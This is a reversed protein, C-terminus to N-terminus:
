KSAQLLFGLIDRRMTEEVVPPSSMATGPAYRNPDAMFINLAVINWVQPSGSLAASYNFNPISGARRGIIGRLDPGIHGGQVTPAVSHCGACRIMFDQKGKEPDGPAVRQYTPSSTPAWEQALKGAVQKLEHNSPTGPNIRLLRGNPHDTLVYIHDDPGVKVDRIREELNLLLKEQLLVDGNVIRLREVAKGALFGVFFDGDWAPYTRGRYRTIGSPTPSAPPKWPMWILVPQEIGMALERPTALGGAYDFGWSSQAWGFNGGPKLLNLEDGGEPGPEVEWVAQDYPDQYLGTPVRHGYSWIEPRANPTMLFPNDAPIAGDRDIRVIKGVDSDLRQAMPKHSDDEPVAVLLTKDALFQLRGAAPGIGALDDASRFICRVEELGSSTYRARYVAAHHHEFSGESILLYIRLNSEYDPDLSMDKLGNFVNQFIAPVGHIPEPDLLGNRLIRLSGERELILADGGPLWTISSPFRLGAAVQEIWYSQLVSAPQSESGPGEAAHLRAASGAITM